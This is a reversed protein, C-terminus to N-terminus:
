QSLHSFACDGWYILTICTIDNTNEKTQLNSRESTKSIYENVSCTHKSTAQNTHTHQYYM